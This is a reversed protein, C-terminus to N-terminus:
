ATEQYSTQFGSYIFADIPSDLVPSYKKLLPRSGGLNKCDNCAKRNTYKDEPLVNGQSSINSIMGDCHPCPRLPYDSM